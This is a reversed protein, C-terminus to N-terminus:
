DFTMFLSVYQIIVYIVGAMESIGWLELGGRFEGVM